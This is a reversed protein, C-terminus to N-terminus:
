HIRAVENKIFEMTTGRLWLAGKKMIVLSDIGGAEFFTNENARSSKETSPIDVMPIHLDRFDPCRVNCIAVEYSSM